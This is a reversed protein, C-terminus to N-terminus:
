NSNEPLGPQERIKKGQENRVQADERSVGFSRIKRSAIEGGGGGSDEQSM